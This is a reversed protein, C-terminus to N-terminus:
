QASKRAREDAEHLRKDIRAKVAAYDTLLQKYETLRKKREAATQPFGKVGSQTKLLGEYKGWGEHADDYSKQRERLDALVFLLKAKLAHDAAVYRLATSYASEAEKLDGKAVQALGERYLLNANQPQKQIGRQYAALAGDFDHAGYARDGDKEPDGTPSAAAPPAEKPAPKSGPEASSPASWAVGLCLGVLMVILRM